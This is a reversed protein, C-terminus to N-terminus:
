NLTSGRQLCLVEGSDGAEVSAIVALSLALCGASLFHRPHRVFYCRLLISVGVAYRLLLLCRLLDVDLRELLPDERGGFMEILDQRQNRQERYRGDRGCVSVPLARVRLDDCLGGCRQGLDKRPQPLM